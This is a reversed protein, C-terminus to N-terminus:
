EHMTKTLDWEAAVALQDARRVARDSPGQIREVLLDHVLDVAQGELLAYRTVLTDVVDEPGYGMTVLFDAMQRPDHADFPPTM